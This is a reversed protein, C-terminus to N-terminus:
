ADPFPKDPLSSSFDSTYRATGNTIRFEDMYGRFNFTSTTARTNHAAGITVEANAGSMVTSDAWSVGIEGNIFVRATGGTRTWAIHNWANLTLSNSTVQLADTVVIDLALDTRLFIAWPTLSGAVTRMDIIGESTSPSVDPYVWTEVTFDNSGLQATTTNNTFTTYQNSGNYHISQGGFKSQASSLSGSNFLVSHNYQSNDTVTAGNFHLLLNVDSYNPDVHRNSASIGLNLIHLQNNPM